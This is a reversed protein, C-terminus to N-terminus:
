KNFSAALNMKRRDACLHIAYTNTNVFLLFKSKISKDPKQARIFHLSILLIPLIGEFCHVSVAFNAVTDVAHMDSARSHIDATQDAPVYFYAAGGGRNGRVPYGCSGAM